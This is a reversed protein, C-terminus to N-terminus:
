CCGTWAGRNEGIVVSGGRASTLWRKEGGGGGARVKVGAVTRSGGQRKGGPREESGYGGRSVTRREASCELQGELYIGEPTLDVQQLQGEHEGALGDRFALALQSSHTLLTARRSSSSAAPSMLGARRRGSVHVVLRLIRAVRVLGGVRSAGAFVPLYLDCTCPQPPTLGFRYPPHLNCGACYHAVVSTVTTTFRERRM